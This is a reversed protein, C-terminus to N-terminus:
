HQAVVSPPDQRKFPLCDRMVKVIAGNKHCAQTVADIEKDVYDWDGQLAKSINIVLDIEVAGDKCAKETEIVKAETTSNRAFFGIVRGVLVNNDKLQNIALPVMDPKAWVSAVNYKIAVECGRKLDEDTTTPQFVSHDIMKELEEAKDM